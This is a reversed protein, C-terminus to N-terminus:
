FKPILKKAALRAKKSYKRKKIESEKSAQHFMRGTHMKKPWGLDSSYGIYKYTERNVTVPIERKSSMVYNFKTSVWYHYVSKM